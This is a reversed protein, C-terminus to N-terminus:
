AKAKVVEKRLTKVFGQAIVPGIGKLQNVELVIDNIFGEEETTIILFCREEKRKKKMGLSFIGFALLRTLTVDKTIQEETKYQVDQIDKLKIEYRKKWFQKLIIKDKKIEIGMSGNYGFNPYGGQYEGDIKFIDKRVEVMGSFLGM